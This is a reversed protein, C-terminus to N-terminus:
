VGRRIIGEREMKGRVDKLVVGQYAELDILGRM